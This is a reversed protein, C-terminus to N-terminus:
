RSVPQNTPDTTPGWGATRSVPNQGSANFSQSHIFQFMTCVDRLKGPRPPYYPEPKSPHTARSITPAGGRGHRASLKCDGTEGTEVQMIRWCRPRLVRPRSVQYESRTMKAYGESFTMKACNALGSVQPFQFRSDPFLIEM